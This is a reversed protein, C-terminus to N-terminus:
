AQAVRGASQLAPCRMPRALGPRPVGTCRRLKWFWGLRVAPHSCFPPDLPARSCAVEIGIAPSSETTRRTIVTRRYHHVVDIASGRLAIDSGVQCRRVSTHKHFKSSSVMDVRRQAAELFAANVIDPPGYVCIDNIDLLGTPMSLARRVARRSSRIIDLQEEPTSAGRRDARSDAIHGDDGPM